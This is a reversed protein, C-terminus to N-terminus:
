AMIEIAVVGRALTSGAPGPTRVLGMGGQLGAPFKAWREM